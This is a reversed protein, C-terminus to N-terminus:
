ITIYLKDLNKNKEYAEKVIEESKNELILKEYYSKKIIKIQDNILKEIRNIDSFDLKLMFLSSIQKQDKEDFKLILDALCIPNNQEYHSIIMDLLRIYIPEVFEEKNIYPELKTYIHRDSAIINIIFERAKEIRSNKPEQRKYNIHEFDNNDILLSVEQLIAEKEIGTINSTEKVFVDREVPSKLSAIIKSIDKTFEIKDMSNDINYEKLKQKIQFYIYSKASNLLSIFSEAGFKKIYEDPDKAGELVAVRVSIGNQVLLPIAKLTAKIGAEDNDFMLIVKDAYKKLLKIHNQNFATGLSAVVNHVGAQYISIVDLYGEAIILERRKNNKAININYLNFSKNFIPTDPSNLYKAKDRNLLDRGGFGIIRGFSDIIPFMLRGSFRDFFSGNNGQIVLGSKLIIEDSYGKQKLFIYVDDNKLLSYGIGFRRSSNTNIQRNKLYDIALTGESSFLNDYFKRAVIKHIEYLTNKEEQEQQSSFDNTPLDYNIRNALFELAELFNYNEMDMIFNFVTGSAGCGFCHYLQKDPSVSFSPTNEKHFPCIGVYSSGRQKLPTYANILEVIDNGLRVEEIIEESYRM